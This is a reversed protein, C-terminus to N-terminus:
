AGTLASVVQLARTKGAATKEQRVQALRNRIEASSEGLRDPNPKFGVTLIQPLSTGGSGNEVTLNFQDLLRASLDSGDLGFIEALVQTTSPNAAGEINYKQATYAMLATRFVDITVDGKRARLSNINSSALTLVSAVVDSIYAACLNETTSIDDTYLSSAAITPLTQQLLLLNYSQPGEETVAYLEALFGSAINTFLTSTFSTEFIAADAKTVREVNKDGIFSRPILVSANFAGSGTSTFESSGNWHNAVAQLYDFDADVVPQQRISFRLRGVDRAAAPTAGNTGTVRFYLASYSIPIEIRHLFQAEQSSSFLRRLSM